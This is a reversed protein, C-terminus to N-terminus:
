ATLDEIRVRRWGRGPPKPPKCIEIEKLRLKTADEDSIPGIIGLVGPMSKIKRWNKEIDWAFVFVYESLMPALWDLSGRLTEPITPVWPLFEHDHLRWAVSREMFEATQIAYWAPEGTMSGCLESPIRLRNKKM